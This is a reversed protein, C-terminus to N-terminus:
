KLWEAVGEEEIMQLCELYHEYRIASIENKEVAEKVACEPEDRHM